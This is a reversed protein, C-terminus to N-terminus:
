HGYSRQSDIKDLRSKLDAIQGVLQRNTEQTRSYRGLIEKVLEVMQHIAPTEDQGHDNALLVKLQEGLQNKEGKDLKGDQLAKRVVDEVQYLIEYDSSGALDGAKQVAGERYKRMWETLEMAATSKGQIDEALNAAKRAAEELEKIKQEQGEQKKKRDLIENMSKWAQEAAKVMGQDAETNYDNGFKKKLAELFKETWKSDDVDRKDWLKRDKNRLRGVTDLFKNVREQAKESGEAYKTAFNSFSDVSANMVEAATDMAKKNADLEKKRAEAAKSLSDAATRSVTSDRRQNDQWADTKKTEAQVASDAQVQVGQVTLVNKLRAKATTVAEDLTEQEKFLDALSATRNKIVDRAVKLTDAYAIYLADGSKGRVDGLLGTNRIGEMMKQLATEQQQKQTALLTIMDGNTAGPMRADQRMGDMLAQVNKLSEEDQAKKQVLGAVLPVGVGGLMAAKAMKGAAEDIEKKLKKQRTALEQWQKLTAEANKFADAQKYFEDTKLDRVGAAAPSSQSLAQMRRIQEAKAEALAEARRVANEAQQREIARREGADKADIAALADRAQSETMEGRIQKQRIISRNKENEIQLLQAQMELNRAAKEDLAEITRKRADYADNIQKVLANEKKLAAEQNMRGLEASMGAQWAEVKAKGKALVNALQASVKKAGLGFADNLAAGASQGLNWAQKGLNLVNTANQLGGNFKRWEQMKGGAWTQVQGPFKSLADISRQLWGSQQKVADAASGVTKDAGQVTAGLADLGDIRVAWDNPAAAKDEPYAPVAGTQGGVGGSGFVPSAKVARSLEDMGKKVQDLTGEPRTSAALSKALMADMRALLAAIQDLQAIMWENGGGPASPSPLPSRDPSAAGRAVMDVADAVRALGAQMDALAKDTRGQSSLGSAAVGEARAITGALRDLGEVQITMKGPSSAGSFTRADAVAGEGGSILERPLGRAATSLDDVGKRVQNIGSMDARTGLTMSIDINNNNM